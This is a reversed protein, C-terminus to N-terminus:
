DILILSYLVPEDYNIEVVSNLEIGIADMSPRVLNRFPCKGTKEFECNDCLNCAGPFLSLAYPYRKFLEKERKLLYRLVERKEEEFNSMDIEFKILIAKKYSNILERAEQWPPVFPPCSPRKGYFECSM